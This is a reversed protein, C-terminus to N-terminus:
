KDACSCIIKRLERGRRGRGADGAALRAPMSGTAEATLESLSAFGVADASASAAAAAEAQRVDIM